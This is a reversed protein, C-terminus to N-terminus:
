KSMKRALSGATKMSAFDPREILARDCLRALENWDRKRMIKPRRSTTGFGVGKMNWVAKHGGHKNRLVTLGCICTAGNESNVFGHLHLRCGTGFYWEFKQRANWNGGQNVEQFRDTM